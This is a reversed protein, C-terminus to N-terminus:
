ELNVAISQSIVIDPTGKAKEQLIAEQLEKETKFNAKQDTM